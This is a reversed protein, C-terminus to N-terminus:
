INKILFTKEEDTVKGIFHYDDDYRYFEIGEYVITSKTQIIILAGKLSEFDGSGLLTKDRLGKKAKSLIGSVSKGTLKKGFMCASYGVWTIGLVISRTSFEKKVIYDNAKM